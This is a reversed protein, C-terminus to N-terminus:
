QSIALGVGLGSGSSMGAPRHLLRPPPILVFVKLPLRMGRWRSAPLASPGSPSFGFGLSKVAARITGQSLRDGGAFGGGSLPCFDDICEPGSQFRLRWGFRVKKVAERDAPKPFFKL